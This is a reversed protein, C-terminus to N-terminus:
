EGTRSQRAGLLEELNYQTYRTHSAVNQSDANAVWFDLTDPAFLVSQINSKMCVPRTMLDRAATADFKGYGGQVRRVLEEYRDGASMLVTDKIPHQLQPHSEGAWITEFKDPTAAIGVARKTNGDSIVYYYHCTRPGKRMIEVAEDITDAKEMVERMLQAMPKGDWQGEGGGGMEGIAIHKENMATVTGLFGAYGVNVWANGNDPQMVIVTANQEL